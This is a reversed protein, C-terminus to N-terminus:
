KLNPYLQLTVPASCGRVIEFYQLVTVFEKETLDNRSIDDLTKDVKRLVKYLNDRARDVKSVQREKARMNKAVSKVMSIQRKANMM